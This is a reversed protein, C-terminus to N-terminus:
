TKSGGASVIRELGGMMRKRHSLTDGDVSFPMASFVQEMAHEAVRARVHIIGQIPPFITCSYVMMALVGDRVNGSTPIQSM